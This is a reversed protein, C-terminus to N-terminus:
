SLLEVNGEFVASILIHSYCPKEQPIKRHRNEFNQFTELYLNHLRKVRSIFIVFDFFQFTDVCWVLTKTATCLATYTSRTKGSDMSIM